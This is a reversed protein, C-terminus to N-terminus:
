GRRAIFVQPGCGAGRVEVAISTDVYAALARVASPSYSRLSSIVGDHVFPIVAFPVMTALRV